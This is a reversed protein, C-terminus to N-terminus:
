PSGRSREDLRRLVASTLELVPREGPVIQDHRYIRSFPRIVKAVVYALLADLVGLLVHTGADAIKDGVEGFASTPHFHLIDSPVNALIGPIDEIDQIATGFQKLAVFAVVGVVVVKGFHGIARQWGAPRESGRMRHRLVARRIRYILGDGGRKLLASLEERIATREMIDAITSYTSIRTKGGFDNAIGLATEFTQVGEETLTISYTGDPQRRALFFLCDGVTGSSVPATEVPEQITAHQDEIRLVGDPGAVVRFLERSAAPPEDVAPM